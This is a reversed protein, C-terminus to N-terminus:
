PQVALGIERGFVPVGALAAPDSLDNFHWWEDDYISFGAATMAKQLLALRRRVAPDNGTYAAAAKKSFDDFASPMELVRGSLDTLTVDVARGYCHKSWKKRPDAVYKDDRFMQFLQWQVEPPRYADLVLLRLGHPKLTRNAAALKQATSDAALAPFGAPYLVKKFVNDPTAYPLNSRISADYTAVPVLGKPRALQVVAPAEAATELKLPAPMTRCGGLILLVLLGCVPFSKM